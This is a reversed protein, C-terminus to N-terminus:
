QVKFTHDDSYVGGDLTVELSIQHDGVAYDGANLTFSKGSGRPSGDVLWRYSDFDGSVTFTHASPTGSKSITITGSLLNYAKDTPYVLTVSGTGLSDIKAKFSDLKTKEAGLLAQAEPSLGSYASLASTVRNKDDSTINALTKNLITTHNNKFTTAAQEAKIGDIKAKFSDLTEKEESLLDQAAQSLNNYASLASTVAPEDSTTISAETRSLITNYNSKFSNAEGTPLWKAYLTLNKASGVPIAIVKDGTLESNEYWGDFTYNSRTPNGLTLPLNHAGYSAPNTANQIGGDLNYTITYATTWQAHM